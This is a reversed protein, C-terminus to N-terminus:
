PQGAPGRGTLRTVTELLVNKRFPKELVAAYGAQGARERVADSPFGTVLIGPGAWHEARLRALVAIGDIDKVRYDAVLCAADAVNGDALLSAGLAHARVDFGHASFLLQLSRRVAADDELLMIKPRAARVPDSAVEM